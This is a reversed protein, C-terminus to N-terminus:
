ASDWAAHVAEPARLITSVPEIGTPDDLRLGPLRELLVDLGTLLERRALHSGPCFHPGSGFSILGVPDRDPDFEDPHDHVTPDRNAAAIGFLLLSGAPIGTGQWEANRTAIRPLAGLPPEWRLLEEIIAPRRQPDDFAAVLVSERTLLVYLLNGLAHYTTAAGAAFFMRIHAIVEEDDLRRGDVEHHLMASLVDDTPQRRREGIVPGLHEDFEDRATRAAEPDRMFGLLDFSWRRLSEDGAPPLGLKRRLVRFPFVACFEAMLDARGRGIFADVVENAVAALGGADFREIARSRFAPQALQRYLNHEDGDMSEFTRGQVPEIVIEYHAGAPFRENDRFAGVVDESRTLFLASGGHFPVEVVPGMERVTACARHFSEGPLPDSGFDPLPDPPVAWKGVTYIRAGPWPPAHGGM